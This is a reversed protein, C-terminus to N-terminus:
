GLIGFYLLDIGLVRFFDQPPLRKTILSTGRYTPATPLPELRRNSATVHTPLLHAHISPMYPIWFYLYLPVERM